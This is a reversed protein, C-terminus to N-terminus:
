PQPGTSIPLDTSSWDSWSGVYLSPRPLGAVEAALILHCATVGSGCHAIVTTSEDVGVEAMRRRVVAADLIQDREDLHDTFPLSRAGPIHGAKPDVPEDDGRYRELSRADLVVTDDPRDAVDDITAVGSWPRAEFPPVPSVSPESRTLPRGATRWATIGGDLVQIRPFGQATGMWWLRAASAGGRDDYAVVRHSRDIGLTAM